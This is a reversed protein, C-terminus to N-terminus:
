WTWTDELIFSVVFRHKESDRVKNMEEDEQKRSKNWVGVYISVKKWWLVKERESRKVELQSQEFWTILSHNIHKVIRNNKKKFNTNKRWSDDLCLM